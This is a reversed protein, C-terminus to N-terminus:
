RVWGLNQYSSEISLLNYYYLVMCMFTYMCDDFFQRHAPNDLYIGFENYAPESKCLQILLIGDISINELRELMYAYAALQMCYNFGIHNGTKYDILMKRGNVSYLGDLTGGFYKCTLIHEHRLTQIQNNSTIDGYWRLFSAYALKADNYIDDGIDPHKKTSLFGDIMNHCQTGINASTFLLQEYSVKKWGLYNAWQMLGNDHICRHIIATVRPIHHNEYKYISYIQEYIWPHTNLFEDLLSEIQAIQPIIM